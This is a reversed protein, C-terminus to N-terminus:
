IEGIGKLELHTLEYLDLIICALNEAIVVMEVFLIKDTQIKKNEIDALRGRSIGTLNELERLSIGKQERLEKIKINIIM